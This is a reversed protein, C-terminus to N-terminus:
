WPRPSGCIYGPGNIFSIVARANADAAATQLVSAPVWAQPFDAVDCLFEGQVQNPSHFRNATGDDQWMDGFEYESIGHFYFYDCNSGTAICNGGPPNSFHSTSYFHQEQWGHWGEHMFDGARSGPNANASSPNYLNCTTQVENATFFHYIWRGFVHGSAGTDDTAVHYLDDHYESDWRQATNEYDITAHFSGNYDDLLGYGVLYAANWHKTYETNINCADNYGRNGWNSSSTAYVDTHYLVFDWWCGHVDWLNWDALSADNQVCVANAPVPACFLSLGLVVTLVTSKMTM